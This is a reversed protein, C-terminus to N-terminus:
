MRQVSVRAEISMQFLARVPTGNRTGPRFQADTLWREIAAANEAAGLGRLKLTKLDARGYEDVEVEITVRLPSRGSPTPGSIRLPPVDARTVMRPPTVEARQSGGSSSACALVSLALGLATLFRSRLGLM